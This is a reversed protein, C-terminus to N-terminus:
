DVNPNAKGTLRFYFIAVLVVVIPILSKMWSTAVNNSAGGTNRNYNEILPRPPIIPKVDDQHLEAIEYTKMLERADPSHHVDEFEHSADRGHQEKLIEEGGPHEDLFKTVDYVRNNIVLICRNKDEALQKVESLTLVQKDSNSTAM